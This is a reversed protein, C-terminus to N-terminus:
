RTSASRRAISIVFSSPRPSPTATRRCRGLDTHSALRSASPRATSRRRPPSCSRKVNTSKVAELLKQTTLVNQALYTDFEEGWSARVGPQGALHFVVDAGDLLAELGLEHLDGEVFTFTNDDLLAGFNARKREVSYYPSLSDVGVVDDGRARLAEALQSGIFGAVGTVLARVAGVRSCV